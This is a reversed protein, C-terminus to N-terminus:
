CGESHGQATKTADALEPWIKQWDLPRLDKRTVAAGTAKEILACYEPPVSQRKLWAAVATQVVGCVQALQRQSGVIEIAKSLSQM